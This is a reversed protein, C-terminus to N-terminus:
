AVAIRRRTWRDAAALRALGYELRGRWTELLPQGEGLAAHLQVLPRSAVGPALRADPREDAALALFMVGYFLHSVRRALALRARQRDTPPADFYVALLRDAAQPSPAFLNAVAALDIYRDAAFASEWDILWLRRGDSLINRPNLDNHSSVTEVGAARSSKALGAWLTATRERTEPALLPRDLLGTVLGDLADVYDTLPPFAPAEHLLRVTRALEDLLAPGGGPFDSLLRPEIWEVITLGADPDAHRVRPSLLADAAIRQCAQARAPDRVADRATDIRLVYPIGGVRIRWSGAGSLGGTLRTEADVVDTAFTARLARAVAPIEAVSM